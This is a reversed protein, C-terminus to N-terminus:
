EQFIFECNARVVVILRLFCQVTSRYLIYSLVSYFSENPHSNPNVSVKRLMSPTVTKDPPLGADTILYQSGVANGRIKGLVSEDGRDDTPDHDLSVLYYSTSKVTMKRASM